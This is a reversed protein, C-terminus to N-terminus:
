DGTADHTEDQLDRVLKSDYASKQKDIAKLVERWQEPHPFLAELEVATLPTKPDSPLPIFGPPNGSRATM